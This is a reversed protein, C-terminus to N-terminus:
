RWYDDVLKDSYIAKAIRKQMDMFEDFTIDDDKTEISIKEDYYEVTIKM